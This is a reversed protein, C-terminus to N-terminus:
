LASEAYLVKVPSLNDTRLQYMAGNVEQFFEVSLALMLAQKSGPTFQVSLNPLMCEVMDLPLYDSRVQDVSFIEKELDLEAAVLWLRFHSSNLPASVSSDPIFPPIKVIFEGIPRDISIFLYPYFTNSLPAQYNFDFNRLMSLDGKSLQRQGRLSSTDSKIVHLLLKQMRGAILKNPSTAKVMPGFANRILVGARSAKSFEANNETMRRM